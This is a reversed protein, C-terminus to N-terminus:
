VPLEVYFDKRVKDNIWAIQDRNILRGDNAQIWQKEIEWNFRTDSDIYRVYRYKKWGEVDAEGPISLTAPRGDVLILEGSTIGVNVEQAEMGKMRQSRSWSFGLIVFLAGLLGIVVAGGYENM